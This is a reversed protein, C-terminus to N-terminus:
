RWPRFARWWWAGCGPPSPPWATSPALCESANGNMGRRTRNRTLSTFGRMRGALSQRCLVFFAAADAVPDGSPVHGRAAEWETRSLPVAEVARRFREFTDPGRLVRWFNALRGDLDNAVESVGRDDGDWLRPDAPDRALLVSGGGFYPEVYHLHPPMLGVIKPALYHKGGHWKLPPTLRAASPVKPM